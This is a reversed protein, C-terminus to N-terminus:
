DKFNPWVHEGFMRIQRKQEELPMNGQQYFEWSLWELNGDSHCKQLDYLQRNVDDPTGCILHGAEMMREACHQASKFEVFKTPDDEETRFLEAFGFKSFYDYFDWGSTRIAIDMAEEFTDGITILRVAAIKEGLGVTRGVSAMTAQYKLCQQLFKEPKSELLLMGFGRTAMDILTQPSGSFPVFLEPHPKSAPAPIVGIKRLIGDEDVEGPAGYDRTQEWGAWGGIGTAPFPVQYHEGSYTFADETWAKIMVDLYENFIERNRVDASKEEPKFSSYANDDQMLTQVWRKQYGRAVSFKIRGPFMQDFLAVDEATRLPDRAPLVLSTPMFILKETQQAIKAYFLLPSPLAERGETHFHHETTGFATFEYEEALLALEEVEHLMAQYHEVNRGIPRLDSYEQPTGPM